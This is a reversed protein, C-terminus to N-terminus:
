TPQATGVLVRRGSSAQNNDAAEITVTITPFDRPSVGSWLTVRADSSSFTGIPVLGNASNKLWAQYYEGAALPPLGHADLSIHFGADNHTIDASAHAGPAVGTASLHASFDPNSGSRIVGVAGVVIVIAAAAALASWMIRRRRAEPRHSQSPMLQTVPTLAPDDANADTDADADAVARVVSDELAADPEAWMSPDALLEALLGVDAAEAAELAGARDGAILAEREDNTPRESM